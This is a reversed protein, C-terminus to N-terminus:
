RNRASSQHNIFTTCHRGNLNLQYCEGIPVGTVDCSIWIYGFHEYRLGRDLRWLQIWFIEDADYGNYLTSPICNSLLLDENHYYYNRRATSQIPFNGHWFDHMFTFEIFVQALNRTLSCRSGFISLLHYSIAVINFQYNAWLLLYFPDTSSTWYYPLSIGRSLISASAISELLTKNSPDGSQEERNVRPHDLTSYRRSHLHLCCFIKSSQKFEHVPITFSIIICVKDTLLFRNM